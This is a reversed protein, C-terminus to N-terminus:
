REVKAPKPYSQRENWFGLHGWPARDQFFYPKGREPKHRGYGYETMFGRRCWPCPAVEETGTKGQGVPLVGDDLCTLCEEEREWPDNVVRGSAPWPIADIHRV